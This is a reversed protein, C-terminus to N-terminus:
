NGANGKAFAVQPQQKADKEAIRLNLDRFHALIEHRASPSVTYCTQGRENQYVGHGPDGDQWCYGAGIV